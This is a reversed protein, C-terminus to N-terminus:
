VTEEQTLMQEIKRRSLVGGSDINLKLLRREPYHLLNQQQQELM